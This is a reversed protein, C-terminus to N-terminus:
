KSFELYPQILNTPVDNTTQKSTFLNNKEKQLKLHLQM